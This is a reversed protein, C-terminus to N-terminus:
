HSKLSIHSFFYISDPNRMSSIDVDNYIGSILILKNVAPFLHM